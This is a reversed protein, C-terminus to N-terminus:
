DKPFITEWTPYERGDPILSKTEEDTIILRNIKPRIKYRTSCQGAQINGYKTLQACLLETFYIANETQIYIAHVLSPYDENIVSALPLGFYLEPGFTTKGTKYDEVLHNRKEISERLDLCSQNLTSFLNLIGNSLSTKELIFNQLTDLPLNPGPLNRLDAEFEFPILHLIQGSRVGDAHLAHSSKQIDYLDKVPKIFQKKANILSNFISISIAIAANIGRIEDLLTTKGREKEIIKQVIAAGAWAGAASGILATVFSSNAFDKVFNWIAMLPCLIDQTNM